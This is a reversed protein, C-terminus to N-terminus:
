QGEASKRKDDITVISVVAPHEKIKELLWDLPVGSLDVSVPGSHHWSSVTVTDACLGDLDIEQM